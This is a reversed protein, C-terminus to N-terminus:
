KLRFGYGVVNITRNMKSRGAPWFFLRAEALNHVIGEWLHDQLVIQCNWLHAGDVIINNIM